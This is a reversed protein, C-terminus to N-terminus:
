PSINCAPLVGLRDEFCNEFSLLNFDVELVLLGSAIFTECGDLLEVGREALLGTDRASGIEEWEGHVGLKDLEFADFVQVLRRM